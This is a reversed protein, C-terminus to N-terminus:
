TNAINLRWLSWFLLCLVFGLRASFVFRKSVRFQLIVNQACLLVPFHGPLLLRQQSKGLSQLDRLNVAGKMLIWPVCNYVANIWVCRFLRQKLFSNMAMWFHLNFLNSQSHPVWGFHRQSCLWKINSQCTWENGLLRWLVCSIRCTLLIWAFFLWSIRIGEESRKVWVWKQLSWLMINYREYLIWELESDPKQLSFVFSNCLTWVGLPVESASTNGM